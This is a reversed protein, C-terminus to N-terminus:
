ADNTEAWACDTAQGHPGPIGLQEEGMRVEELLAAVARYEDSRIPLDSLMAVAWAKMRRFEARVAGRKEDTLPCALQTPPVRRNTNTGNQFSLDHLHSGSERLVQKTWALQLRVEDTMADFNRRGEEVAAHIGPTAPSRRANAM